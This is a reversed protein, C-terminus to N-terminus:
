KTSVLVYKKKQEDEIIEVETISKFPLANLDELTTRQADLYLDAGQYDSERIVFTGQESKGIGSRKLIAPAYQGDFSHPKYSTSSNMGIEKSLRVKFYKMENQRFLGLARQYDADTERQLQAPISLSGVGIGNKIMHGSYGQIPMFGQGGTSGEGRSGKATVVIGVSTIFQQLPDYEVKNVVFEGGFQNAAKRMQVFDELAMMPSVSWFLTDNRILIGRVRKTGQDEIVTESAPIVPENIKAPAKAAVKEAPATEQFKEQILSAVIPKVAKPVLTVLKHKFPAVFASSLYLVAILAGYKGWALYHSPKRNM